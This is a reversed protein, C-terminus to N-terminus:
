RWLVDFSRELVLRLCVYVGLLPFVLWVGNTGGVVALVGALPRGQYRRNFVYQFFYLATGFLKQYFLLLGLVGLVVPSFIPFTMGLLFLVSPVLTVLGNGVDIAFGFSKPDAYGDDWHAYGLWTRAWLRSSCAERLSVRTTYLNGHPREASTRPLAFWRRIDDIRRWLSIEWVCILLNVALFLALTLQWGNVVGHRARHLAVPVGVWLLMWVAIWIWVPLRARMRAAYAIERV